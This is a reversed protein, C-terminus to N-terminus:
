HHPYRFNRKQQEGIEWQARKTKEVLAKVKPDNMDIKINSLNATALLIDSAKVKKVKRM